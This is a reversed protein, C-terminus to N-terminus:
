RGPGASGRRKPCRHPDSEPSCQSHTEGRARPSQESRHHSDLSFARRHVRELVDRSLRCGFMVVDKLVGAARKGALEILGTGIRITYEAPGEAVQDLGVAEVDRRLGPNKGAFAALGGLKLFARRDFSVIEGRESKWIAPPRAGIAQGRNRSGSSIIAM